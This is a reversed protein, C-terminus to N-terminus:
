TPIAVSRSRGEIYFAQKLIKQDQIEQDQIKRDQKWQISSIILNTYTIPLYYTNRKEKLYLHYYNSCIIFTEQTKQNPICLKSKSSNHPKPLRFSSRFPPPFPPLSVSISSILNSSASRSIICHSSAQKGLSDYM